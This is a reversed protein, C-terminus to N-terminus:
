PQEFIRSCSGLSAQAPNAAVVVPEFESIAKAVAAFATQAPDKQGKKPDELWQPWGLFTCHHPDWEAPMRWTSAM